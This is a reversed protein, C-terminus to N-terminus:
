VMQRLVVIDNAILVIQELLDDVIIAVSGCKHNEATWYSGTTLPM